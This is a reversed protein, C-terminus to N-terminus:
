IRVAGSGSRVGVNGGGALAWRRGTQRLSGSCGGGMIVTTPGGAQAPLGLATKSGIRRLRPESSRATDCVAGRSRASAHRPQESTAGRREPGAAQNECGNPRTQPPSPGCRAPGGRTPSMDGIYVRKVALSRLAHVQAPLPPEPQRTTPAPRNRAVFHRESPNAPTPSCRPRGNPGRRPVPPHRPGRVM